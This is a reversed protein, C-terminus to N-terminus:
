KEGKLIIRKAFGGKEAFKQWRAEEVNTYDPLEKIAEIVEIIDALEEATPTAEFERVEELLKLFLETKYEEPTAIRQEYPVGKADLLEPIKDRVLKNYSAM